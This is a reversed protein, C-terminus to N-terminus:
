EDMETMSKANQTKNGIFILTLYMSVTNTYIYEMKYLV